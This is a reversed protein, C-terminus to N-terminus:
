TAVAPRRGKPDREAAGLGLPRLPVQSARCDDHERMGNLLRVYFATKETQGNKDVSVKAEVDNKM